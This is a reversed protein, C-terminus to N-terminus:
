CDKSKLSNENKLCFPFFQNRVLPIGDTTPVCYMVDGDPFCIKLTMDVTFGQDGNAVSYRFIICGYLYL